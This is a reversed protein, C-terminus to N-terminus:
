LTEPELLKIEIHDLLSPARFVWFPSFHVEAKAVEDFQSLHALIDQRDKNVFNRRDFM